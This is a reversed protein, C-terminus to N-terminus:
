CCILRLRVASECLADEEEGRHCFDDDVDRTFGGLTVTLVGEIKGDEIRIVFRGVVHDKTESRAFQQM